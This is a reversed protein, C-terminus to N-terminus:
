FLLSREWWVKFQLWSGCGAWRAIDGYGITLQTIISFYFATVPQTGPPHLGKYNLAYILGFWLMLEIYNIAVLVLSRKRSIVNTFDVTTTRVIIELIRLAALLYVLWGFATVYDYLPYVAVSILLVATFWCLVYVEVAVASLGPWIYSLWGMPLVRMLCTAAGGLAPVIFGKESRGEAM